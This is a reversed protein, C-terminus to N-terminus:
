GSEGRVGDMLEEIDIQASPDRSAVGARWDALSPLSAETSLIHIVLDSLSVGQQEARRKLTGHVDDPLRKVQLTAM